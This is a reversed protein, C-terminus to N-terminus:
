CPGPYEGFVRDLEKDEVDFVTDHPPLPETAMFEPLRDQGPGFGARINFIREQWLADQGICRIDKETPIKGTLAGVLGAFLEYQARLGTFQCLGLSDALLNNIQSERSREVHGDKSLPEETVFGATHDAGQPSTAYTVGLGKIPRACHGPLAQGKVAAVRRIGFVKGTIVSGQGLIRGLVTGQGIEDILAVARKRDGFCFLDTETLIGLTVGTEITDMGYNDCRFDIQAITDLDDIDLNSGMMAITEYELGSTLYQGYEDHYINSCQIVCGRMCPHGMSGGRQQLIEKLKESNISNKKEYSGATFNRTPLSGRENSIEVLGVTGNERWFATRKSSKLIKTYEKVAKTFAVTDVGKLPRGGKPDIVIAKLGKAGMVAGLGGRAAFRSPRGDTDTVAIAAAAMKMEGCPGISIVGVDQGFRKKLATVTDYNGTGKIESAEFLEAYDQRIILGKLSSSHCEGEIVIAGIGLQGLMIGAMGGVNSEKIGGTLPSKAGISMRSATPMPTGAFLGPAIVLKNFPGLPHCTPPVEESIIRDVMARGGLWTVEESLDRRDIKQQGLDVTLRYKM